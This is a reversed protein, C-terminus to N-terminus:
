TGDPRTIGPHPARAMSCEWPVQRCECDMMWQCPSSVTDSSSLNFDRELAQRVESVTAGPTSQSATTGLYQIRTHSCLTSLGLGVGIVSLSGMRVIPSLDRYRHCPLKLEVLFRGNPHHYATARASLSPRLGSHVQLVSSRLHRYTRNQKEYRGERVSAALRAKM